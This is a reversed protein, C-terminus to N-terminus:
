NNFREINLNRKEFLWKMSQFGNSIGSFCQFSILNIKAFKKHLGKPRRRSNCLVNDSLEQRQKDVCLPYIVFFCVSVLLVLM